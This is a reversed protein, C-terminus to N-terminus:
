KSSFHIDIELLDESAETTITQFESLMIKYGQIVKIQFSYNMIIGTEREPIGIKNFVFSTDSKFITIAYMKGQDIVISNKGDIDTIKAQSFGTSDAM